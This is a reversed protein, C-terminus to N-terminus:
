PRRLLHWEYDFVGPEIPLGSSDVVAERRFGSRDVLSEWRGRDYCRLWERSDHHTVGGPRTVTVHHLVEERRAGRSSKAPGTTGADPPIYTALLDVRCRGRAGSWFDETIEEVGPRTLSLGVAYIGGPKLVQKMEAFHRSLAADSPLHRITNGPNFAFDISRRGVAAAFKELDAVLVRARRGRRALRGRAYRVLAPARDFGIVRHGRAAAVRLYRGTGCAPELWIPSRTRTAVYRATMKELGSVERATGPTHLIDYVAADGYLGSGGM